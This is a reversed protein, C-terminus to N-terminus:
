STPFCTPILLPLRGRESHPSKSRACPPSLSETWRLVEDLMATASADILETSKFRRDEDLHQAVFPINVAEPVPMIKLATLVQESAATSPHARRDGRGRRTRPRRTAM